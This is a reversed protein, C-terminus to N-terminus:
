SSHEACTETSPFDGPPETLECPNGEDCLCRVQDEVVGMVRGCKLCVRTPKGVEAIPFLRGFHVTLQSGDRENVVLTCGQLIAAPQEAPVVFTDHSLRGDPSLVRYHRQDAM